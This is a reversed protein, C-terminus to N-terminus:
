GSAGRCRGSLGRAGIDLRLPQCTFRRHLGVRNMDYSAALPHAFHAVCQEDEGINELYKDGPTCVDQDHDTRSTRARGPAEHLQSRGTVLDRDPTADLIGGSVYRSRSM